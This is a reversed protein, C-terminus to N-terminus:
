GARVTVLFAEVSAQLMDAQRNLKAAAALTQQAARGSAGVGDRVEAIIGAVNQSGAAAQGTERAIEGTTTAQQDMASAVRAAIEDITDVTRAIDTLATAASGSSCRVRAIKSAVDTAATSAQGALTKIESAVVAFANGALGARNAEITANLALLNTQKAIKAISTVVDEITQTYAILDAVIADTLSASTSAARAIDAANGIQDAVHKISLSMEEAASAVALSNQSANEAVGAADATLRDSDGVASSVLTADAEIQRALESVADVVARVSTEFSDALDLMAKRREQEAHFRDQERQRAQHQTQEIERREAELAASRRAEVEHANSRFIEVARAMEGLEDQRHLGTIEIELNGAALANMGDAMRIIPKTVFRQVMLGALLAVAIGIASAIIAVTVAGVAAAQAYLTVRGQARDISLVIRNTNAALAPGSVQLVNDIARDRVKTAAVVHDFAKDYAILESIVSDAAGLQPSGQLEEFLVNMADELDLLNAKAHQATAPDPAALYRTVNIRMELYFAQAVSAAYSAENAGGAHSTDSIRRLTASIKPGRVEIVKRVEADIAQQAGVIRGSSALTAELAAQVADLADAQGMADAANEADDLSSLATELTNDAQRAVRDDPRIVYDKLYGQAAISQAQVRLLTQTGEDLDTVHGVSARILFLSGITTLAMAAMTLGTLGFLLRVKGDISWHGLMANLRALRWGYRRELGSIMDGFRGRRM